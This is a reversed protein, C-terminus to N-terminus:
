KESGPDGIRLRTKGAVRQMSVGRGHVRVGSSKLVPRRAIEYMRIAHFLEPLELMIDGFREVLGKDSLDSM